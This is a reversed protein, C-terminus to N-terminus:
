VDCEKLLKDRKERLLKMPLLKTLKIIESDIEDQKPQPREDFWKLKNKSVYFNHKPKLSYVADFLTAM